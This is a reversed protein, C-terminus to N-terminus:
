LNDEEADSPVEEELMAEDQIDEDTETEDEEDEMQENSDPFVFLGSTLTLRGAPM